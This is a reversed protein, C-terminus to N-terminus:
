KMILFGLHDLASFTKFWLKNKSSCYALENKKRSLSRVLRIVSFISIPRKTKNVHFVQQKNTELTRHRHYAPQRILKDINASNGMTTNSKLNVLM